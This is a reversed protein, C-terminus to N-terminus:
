PTLTWHFDAGSCTYDRPGFTLVDGNNFVARAYLQAYGGTIDPYLDGWPGIVGGLEGNVYFQVYYGTHNDVHINCWAGGKAKPGGKSPPPAINQNLSNTMDNSKVHADSSASSGKVGNTTVNQAAMPIAILAAICLMLSTRLLPKVM